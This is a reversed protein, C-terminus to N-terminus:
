GASREEGWWWFEHFLLSRLPVPTYTFALFMSVCRGYAACRRQQSKNNRCNNKKKKWVTERIKDRKVTPLDILSKMVQAIEVCTLRKKRRREKSSRNRRKKMGYALLSWTTTTTAALWKWRNTPWWRTTKSNTTELLIRKKRLDIELHVFRM